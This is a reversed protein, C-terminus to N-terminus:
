EHMVVMNLAHAVSLELMAGKSQPWGRLLMIHTCRLLERLDNRLWDHRHVPNYDPAYHANIERPSIVEDWEWSGRLKTAMADFAPFNHDPLGTMPGAIYIRKIM